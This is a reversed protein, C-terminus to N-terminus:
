VFYYFNYWFLAFVCFNLIVGVCFTCSALLLSRGCVKDQADKDVGADLLLQMCVADGKVTALM